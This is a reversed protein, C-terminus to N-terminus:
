RVGAYGALFYYITKKSFIDYMLAFYIKSKKNFLIHNGSNYRMGLGKKKSNKQNM